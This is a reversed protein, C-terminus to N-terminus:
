AGAPWARRTWMACCRARGRRGARLLTYRIALEGWQAGSLEARYAVVPVDGRQGLYLSCHMMPNDGPWRFATVASGAMNQGNKTPRMRSSLLAAPGSA